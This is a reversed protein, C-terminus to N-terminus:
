DFLIIHSGLYEGNKELEHRATDELEHISYYEPSYINGNNFGVVVASNKKPISLSGAKGDHGFFTSKQRPYAWPLDKTSLDDHIGFVRIRCRGEKRPDNPDEVIGMYSKDLYDQKRKAIEHNNNSM